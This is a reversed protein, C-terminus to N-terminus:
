RIRKRLKKPFTKKTSEPIETAGMSRVYIMLKERLDIMKALRPNQLLYLRIFEYLKDHAQSEPSTNKTPEAGGARLNEDAIVAIRDEDGNTLNENQILM